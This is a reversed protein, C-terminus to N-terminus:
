QARACTALVRRVESSVSNWIPDRNKRPKRSSLASSVMRSREMIREAAPFLSVSCSMMGASRRRPGM